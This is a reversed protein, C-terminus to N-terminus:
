RPVRGHVYVDGGVEEIHCDVLALADQIKEVGIGAFPSKAELGGILKPAIFAHVEDVARADLFSGLVAAGGEVLLNTLRRRGLENLLEVFSLRGDIIPLPLVECGLDRFEGAPAMGPKGAVAILVPIERATRALTSDLPLRGSSDLVIRTATRPGPPRATLLPDDALATGIGVLIADM